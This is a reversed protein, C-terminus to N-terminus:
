RPALVEAGCLRAAHVLAWSVRNPILDTQQVLWQVSTAKDTRTSKQVGNEFYKEVLAFEKKTRFGVTDTSVQVAGYALDVDRLNVSYASVQTVGGLLIQRFTWEMVCGAFRVNNIEYDDDREKKRGYRELAAKLWRTTEALTRGSKFTTLAYRDPSPKAPPKEWDFAPDTASGAPQAHVPVSVAGAICLMFLALAASARM